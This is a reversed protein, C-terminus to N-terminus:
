ETTPLHSERGHGLRTPASGSSASSSEGSTTRPSRTATTPAPSAASPHSASTSRAPRLTHAEDIRNEGAHGDVRSRRIKPRDGPRAGSPREARALPAAARPRGRAGYDCEMFYAAVDTSFMAELVLTEYGGRPWGSAASTGAPLHMAVILGAPRRRHADISPRGCLHPAADGSRRRDRAPEERVKPDCLYAFSVDDLQLYTCGARRTDSRWASLGRRRRGLVRGPRYQQRSSAGAAGRLHLM